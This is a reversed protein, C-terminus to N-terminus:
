EKVRRMSSDSTTLGANITLTTISALAFKGTIANNITEIGLASKLAVILNAWTLKKLIGGSETGVPLLDTDTLTVVSALASLVETTFSAM